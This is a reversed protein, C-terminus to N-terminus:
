ESPRQESQGSMTLWLKYFAEAAHDVSFGMDLEFRARRGEYKQHCGTVVRGSTDPHPGCQPISHKWDAKRGKGGNQTHAIQSYGVLGCTICPRQHMWLQWEPSGYVRAQTKTWRKVNRPKVRGRRAILRPTKTPRKRPKPAPFVSM